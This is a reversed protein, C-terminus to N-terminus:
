TFKPGSKTKDLCFTGFTFATLLYKFIITLKYDLIHRIVVLKEVSFIGM